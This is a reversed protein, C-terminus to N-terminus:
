SGDWFWQPTNRFIVPKKSRWSHPYSHKLRGRAFLNNQQILAAIVRANADGKKGADDLVRAAGETCDPGFGYADNTFFGADDVTFPLQTDIQAQRLQELSNMWLDFDERGHSPATHVFGTGADDSVHNGDLLPVKFDYSPHFKKLPHDLIMEALEETLVTRIHQLQLKASTAVEQALKQAFIFREGKQPGYDNEADTVEYLGYTIQENYAVARNGPLTWPTTTWIVVFAEKLDDSQSNSIPFKVLVVDSEHLHYEIEAEALATREVVSWMVPKSGRYLQNSAAFKLVEGAIRAEAKYDMTLYPNEFDGM